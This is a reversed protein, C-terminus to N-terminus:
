IKVALKVIFQVWQTPHWKVSRLDTDIFSFLDKYYKKIGIVFVNASQDVDTLEDVIEAINPINNEKLIKMTAQENTAFHFVKSQRSDVIKIAYNEGIDFVKGFHGKGLQSKMQVVRTKIVCETLPVIADFYLFKCEMRNQTDVTHLLSRTTASRVDHSYACTFALWFWVCAASLLQWAM